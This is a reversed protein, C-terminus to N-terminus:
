NEAPAYGTLTSGAHLPSVSFAAAVALGGLKPIPRDQQKRGGDPHDHVGFRHALGISVAVALASLLASGVLVTGVTLASM